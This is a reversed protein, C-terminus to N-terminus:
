RRVARPTATGFSNFSRGRGDLVVRVAAAMPRTTRRPAQLEDDCEDVGVVVAAAVVVVPVVLVTTGDVVAAAGARSGSGAPVTM